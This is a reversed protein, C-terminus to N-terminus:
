ISGLDRLDPMAGSALDMLDHERVRAAVQLPTNSTIDFVTDLFQDLKMIKKIIDYIFGYDISLYTFIM